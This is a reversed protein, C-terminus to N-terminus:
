FRLRRVLDLDSGRAPNPRRPNAAPAVCQVRPLVEELPMAHRGVLVNNNLPRFTQHLPVAYDDLGAGITVGELSGVDCGLLVPAAVRGGYFVDEYTIADYGLRRAVNRLTPVDVLAFTEIVFREAVDWTAGFMEFEPLVEWSLLTQPYRINFPVDEDPDM